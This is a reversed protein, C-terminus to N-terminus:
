IYFLAEKWVFEMEYYANKEDEEEEKKKELKKFASHTEISNTNDNTENGRKNKWKIRRQTHTHTLKHIKKKTYIVNM